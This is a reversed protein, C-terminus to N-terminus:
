TNTNRAKFGRGPTEFPTCGRRPSYVLPSAGETSAPSALSLASGAVSRPEFGTPGAVKEKEIPTNRATFGYCKTDVPTNGRQPSRVLSCVEDSFSPSTLRLPSRAVSCPAFVRVIPGASNGWTQYVGYLARCM